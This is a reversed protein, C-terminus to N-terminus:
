SFILRTQQVGAMRAALEAFDGTNTSTHYTNSDPTLGARPGTTWCQSTQSKNHLPAPTDILDPFM